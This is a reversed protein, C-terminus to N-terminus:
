PDAGPLEGMGKGSLWDYMSSDSSTQAPVVRACVCMCVCVYIHESQIVGAEALTSLSYYLKEKNLVVLTDCVRYKIVSRRRCGRCTSGLKMELHSFQPAHLKQRQTGAQM